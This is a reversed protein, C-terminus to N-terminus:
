ATSPIKPKEVMRSSEASTLSFANKRMRPSEESATQAIYKNCVIATTIALRRPVIGAGSGPVNSRPRARTGTATIATTQKM